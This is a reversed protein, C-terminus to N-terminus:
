REGDEGGGMAKALVDRMATEMAADSEVKEEAATTTATAEENGEGPVGARIEAKVKIDAKVSEGFVDASEEEKLLLASGYEFHARACSPHMDGHEAVSQTSLSPSSVASLTTHTLM